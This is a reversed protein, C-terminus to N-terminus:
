CGLLYVPRNDAVSGLYAVTSFHQQSLDLFRRMSYERNTGDADFDIWERSKLDKETPFEIILYKKTIKRLSLIIQCLGNYTETRQYLHHILGLCSVIDYTKNIDSFSKTDFECDLGLAQNIRNCNQIYTKNYDLGTSKLQFNIRALFVYMGLNCGIDLYTDGETKQLASKVLQFKKKSVTWSHGLALAEIRQSTADYNQYGRVKVEHKKIHLEDVDAAELTWNKEHELLDTLNQELKIWGQPNLM